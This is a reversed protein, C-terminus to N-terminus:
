RFHAILFKSSSRRALCPSFIRALRSRNSEIRGFITLTFIFFCAMSSFRSAADEVDEDGIDFLAEFIWFSRFSALIADIRCCRCPPPRELKEEATALAWNVFAPLSRLRLLDGPMGAGVLDTDRPLPFDILTGSTFRVPLGSSCFRIFINFFFWVFRRQIHILNSVSSFFQFTSISALPNNKM